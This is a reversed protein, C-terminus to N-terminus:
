SVTEVDKASSGGSAMKASPAVSLELPIAPASSMPVAEAM